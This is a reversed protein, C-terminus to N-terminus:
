ATLRVWGGLSLSTVSVANKGPFGASLSADALSVKEEDFLAAFSGRVHTTSRTWAGTLNNANESDVLASSAEEMQWMGQLNVLSM